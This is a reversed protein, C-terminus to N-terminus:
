ATRQHRPGLHDREVRFIRVRVIRPCDYFILQVRPLIRQSVIVGCELNRRSEHARQEIASAYSIIVAIVDAGDFIIVLRYTQGVIAIHGFGSGIKIPSYLASDLLCFHPTHLNSCQAGVRRCSARARISLCQLFTPTRGRMAEAFSNGTPTTAEGSINGAIAGAVM